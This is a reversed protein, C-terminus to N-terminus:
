RHLKCLYSDDICYWKNSNNNSIDSNVYQIPELAKCYQWDTTVIYIGTLTVSMWLLAKRPHLYRVRISIGGFLLSCVISLLAKSPHREKSDIEMGAPTFNMPSLVKELQLDRVVTSIAVPTLDIPELANEWHIESDNIIIGVLTIYIPSFANWDHLESLVTVIGALTTVM